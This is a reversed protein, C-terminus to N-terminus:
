RCGNESVKGGVANQQQIEEVFIEFLDLLANNSLLSKSKAGDVTGGRGSLIQTLRTGRSVISESM